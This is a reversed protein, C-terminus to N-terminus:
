ICYQLDNERLLLQLFELVLEALNGCLYFACDERWNRRQGEGHVRRCWTSVSLEPNISMLSPATCSLFGM